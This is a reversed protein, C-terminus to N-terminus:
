LPVCKWKSLRVHLTIQFFCQNCDVRRLNCAFSQLGAHAQWQTKTEHSCLDRTDQPTARMAPKLPFISTTGAICSFCNAEFIRGLRVSALCVAVASATDVKVLLRLTLSICLTCILWLVSPPLSIVFLSLSILIKNGKFFCLLQATLYNLQQSCVEKRVCM